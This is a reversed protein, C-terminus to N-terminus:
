LKKRDPFRFLSVPGTGEDLTWSATYQETKDLDPSRCQPIANGTKDPLTVPLCSLAEWGADAYGIRLVKIYITANARLGCRHPASVLVGAGEDPQNSQGASQAISEPFCSFM